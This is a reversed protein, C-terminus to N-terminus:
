NKPPNKRPTRNGHTSIGGRMQDGSRARPLQAHKRDAHARLGGLIGAAAGGARATTRAAATATKATLRAAQITDGWGPLSRMVTIAAGVAVLIVGLGTLVSDKEGQMAEALGLAIVVAPKVLIVAAMFAAWRRVHGWLNRDVLGTHVVCGLLAGVYLAAGRLVLLLWLTGSAVITLASVAFLVVPGGGFKRHGDQLADALDTFLAGPRTGTATALVDTVADTAATVVYLCLPTFASVLVVLWLQGVAEGLATTVPAGRVARKTVALLWLVLTLVTSAAFVVSYQILFSANTFDAAGASDVTKSLERALWAAANATEHALVTLPDSSGADDLSPAGDQGARCFDGAPGHVNACPDPSPSPSPDPLTPM